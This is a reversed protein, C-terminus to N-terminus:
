KLKELLKIIKRKADCYLSSKFILPKIENKLKSSKLETNEFFSLIRQKLQRIEKKRIADKSSNFQFDLVGIINAQATTPTM